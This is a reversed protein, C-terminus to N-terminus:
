LRGSCTADHETLGLRAMRVTTRRSRSVATGPENSYHRYRKTNQEAQVLNLLADPDKRGIGTSTPSSAAVAM